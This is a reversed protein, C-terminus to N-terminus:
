RDQRLIREGPGSKSRGTEDRGCIRAGGLRELVVLERALRHEAARGADGRALVALPAAGPWPGQRRGESSSFCSPSAPPSCPLTPPLWSPQGPDTQTHIYIPPIRRTARDSNVYYNPTLSIMYFLPSLARQSHLLNHLGSFNSVCGIHSM